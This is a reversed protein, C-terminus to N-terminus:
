KQKDAIAPSSTELNIPWMLPILETYWNGPRINTPLKVLTLKGTRFVDYIIFKFVNWTTLNSLKIKMYSFFSNVNEPINYSKGLDVVLVLVLFLAKPDQNNEEKLYM